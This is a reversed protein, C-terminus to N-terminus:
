KVPRASVHLDMPASQWPRPHQGHRYGVTGPRLKLKCAMSWHLSMHLTRMLGIAGVEASIWLARQSKEDATIMAQLLGYVERYEPEFQIAVVPMQLMVLHGLLILDQHRVQDSIMGMQQPKYKGCAPGQGTSRHMTRFPRSLAKSLLSDHAFTQFAAVM